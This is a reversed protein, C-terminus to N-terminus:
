TMNFADQFQVLLYDRSSWVGIFGLSFRVILSYHNVSFTYNKFLYDLSDFGGPMKYVVNPLVSTNTCSIPTFNSSLYGNAATIATSVDSVDLVVNSILTCGAVYLTPECTTCGALQNTTCSTHYNSCHASCFISQCPQCFLLIVLIQILKKFFIHAQLTKPSSHILKCNNNKM